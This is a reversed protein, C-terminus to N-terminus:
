DGQSLVEKFSKAVCGGLGQMELSAEVENVAFCLKIILELEDEDSLAKRINKELRADFRGPEALDRRTVRMSMHLAHAACLGLCISHSYDQFAIFYLQSLKM